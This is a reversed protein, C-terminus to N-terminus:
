QGRTARASAVMRTRLEKRARHLRTKMAALELGLTRCTEDGSLGELDRLVLVERAPQDLAAIAEHVSRVLEWRELAEHPDPDNTPVADENDIREGLTRRVRFPSLMRLCANRVVRLLWSFANRDRVVEPRNRLKIFADQVADGADFGDKCVRLGYRYVRDHYTRVLVALAEDDGRIAEALVQAHAPRIGRSAFM